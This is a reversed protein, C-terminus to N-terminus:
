YRVNNKLSRNNIEWQILKIEEKLWNFLKMRDSRSLEAGTGLIKHYQETKESLLDALQDTTLKAYDTM